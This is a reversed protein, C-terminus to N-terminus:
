AVGNPRRLEKESDKASIEASRKQTEAVYSLLSLVIDTILTGILGNSKNTTDLIEMDLVKINANKQKTIKRWVELTGHSAVYHTAVPPCITYYKCSRRCAAFSTFAIFILLSPYRFSEAPSM